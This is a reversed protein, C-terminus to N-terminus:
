YGAKRYYTLKCQIQYTATDDEASFLYVNTVVEMRLPQMGDPMAPFRRARNEMRIWAKLDDYFGSNFLNQWTDSGYENISRLIFPFECTGGGRVHAAVTDNGPVADISFQIGGKKANEPLYDVNIKNNTLLPCGEFYTHIGQLITM